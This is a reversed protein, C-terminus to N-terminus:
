TWNRATFQYLFTFLATGLIAGLIAGFRMPTPEHYVYGSVGLMGGVFSGFIALTVAVPATTFPSAYARHIVIGGVIGIVLWIAFGIYFVADM